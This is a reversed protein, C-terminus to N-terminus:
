CIFIDHCVKINPTKTMYEIIANASDTSNMAKSLRDYEIQLKDRKAEEKKLKEDQILDADVSAFLSKLDTYKKQIDDCIWLKSPKLMRNQAYKRSSQHLYFYVSVQMCYKWYKQLWSSFPRKDNNRGKFSSM